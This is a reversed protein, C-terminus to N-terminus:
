LHTGYTRSCGLSIATPLQADDYRHKLISHILVVAQVGKFKVHALHIYRIVFLEDAKERGNMDSVQKNKNNETLVEILHQINMNSQDFILSSFYVSFKIFLYQQSHRMTMDNKRM